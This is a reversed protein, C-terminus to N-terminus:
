QMLGSLGEIQEIRNISKVIEPALIKRSEPLKEWNRLQEILNSFHPASERRATTKLHHLTKIIDSMQTMRNVM